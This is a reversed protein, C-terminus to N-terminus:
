SVLPRREIWFLIPEEMLEKVNSLNWLAHDGTERLLLRQIHRYRPREKDLVAQTPMTLFRLLFTQLALELPRQM